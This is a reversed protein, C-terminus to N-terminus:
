RSNVLRTHAKTRPSVEGEVSQESLEEEASERHGFPFQRVQTSGRELLQLVEAHGNASARMSATVGMQNQLSADAGNNLLLRVVELHGAAAAYILATNGFADCENVQTEPNLLSQVQALDGKSAAMMLETINNALRKEM